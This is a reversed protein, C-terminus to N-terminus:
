VSLLGTMLIGRCNNISCDVESPAGMESARLSGLKTLTAGTPSMKGPVSIFLPAAAVAVNREKLERVKSSMMQLRRTHYSYHFPCFGNVSM